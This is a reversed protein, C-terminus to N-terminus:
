RQPRVLSLGSLNFANTHQWKSQQFANLFPRCIKGLGEIGARLEQLFLVAGHRKIDDDILVRPPLDIDQLLSEQTKTFSCRIVPLPSSKPAYIRHSDTSPYLTSGLISISGHLVTLNCTGLLCLTEHPGLLVLTSPPSHTHSSSPSPPLKLQSVEDGRLSFLNEDIAPQFTSLPTNQHDSPFATAARPFLTSLSIPTIDADMSVDRQSRNLMEEDGDESDTESSLLDEAAGELRVNFARSADSGSESDSGLEIVDGGNQFLDQSPFSSEAFYRQGKSSPKSSKEKTPKKHAKRQKAEKEKLKVRKQRSSPGQPESAPSKRKSSSAEDLASSERSDEPETTPTARRSKSLAAKRAAVASIM